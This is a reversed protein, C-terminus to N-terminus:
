SPVSAPRKGPRKGPSLGRLVQKQLSRPLWGLVKLAALLPKPFAIDEKGAELGQVIIRVAKDLDMIMPMSFPNKETMPTRIFGPCVTTVKIGYPILELRLGDLHARAATKSACYAYTRPISMYSALSSIGVIHGRKRAILDPLAAAITQMLGIVNVEYVQRARAVDYAKVPSNISVGANAILLDIPGLDRQADEVAKKIEDWNVVDAQYVKIVRGPAALEAALEELLQRRRAVLALQYGKAALQRALESGIGTSAGTIFATRQTM